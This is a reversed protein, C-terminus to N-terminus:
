DHGYIHWVALRWREEDRGNGTNAFAQSAEVLEHMAARVEDLGCDCVGEYSLNFDCGECHQLRDMTELMNM